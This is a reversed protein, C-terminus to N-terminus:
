KSIGELDMGSPYVDQCAIGAVTTLAVKAFAFCAMHLERMAVPEKAIHTLQLVVSDTMVVAMVLNHVPQWLCSYAVIAPM